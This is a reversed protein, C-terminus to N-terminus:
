AGPSTRGANRAPATPRSDRRARHGRLQVRGPPDGPHRFRVPGDRTCRGPGPSPDRDCEDRGRSDPEHLLGAVRRPAPQDAHRVPAGSGLVSRSVRLPRQRAQPVREGDRLQAPDGHHSDRPRDGGDRQVLLLSRGATGERSLHTEQAAGARHGDRVGHLGAGHGRHM